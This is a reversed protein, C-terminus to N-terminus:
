HGDLVDQKDLTREEQFTLALNTQTYSGDTHFSGTEENYTTNATTLYSPLLRPELTKGKYVMNVIFKTPFKYVTKGPGTKLPYMHYRFFKVIDEIARAEGEDFPMMNFNFNFTRLGVGNFLAQTNPNTRHGVGARIADGAGPSFNALHAAAIAGSYKPNTFIDKVANIGARGQNMMEQAGGRLGGFATAGAVAAMSQRAVNMSITEYEVGDEIQFGPPMYLYCRGVPRTRKTVNGGEVQELVDKTAAELANNEENILKDTVASNKKVDISTQLAIFEIYGDFKEEGATGMRSPFQARFGDAKPNKGSSRTSAM